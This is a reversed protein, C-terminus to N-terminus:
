ASTLDVGKLNGLGEYFSVSPTEQIARLDLAEVTLASEQQKESLRRAVISVTNLTQADAELEIRMVQAVSTVADTKTAYGFAQIEIQTPIAKLSIQLKGDYDSAAGVPMGVETIGANIVAEGSNKDTIQGSLVHQA